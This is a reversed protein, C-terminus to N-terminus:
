LIIRKGNPKEGTPSIIRHSKEALARNRDLILQLAQKIAKQTGPHGGVLCMGDPKVVIFAAQKDGTYDICEQFLQGWTKPLSDTPQDM